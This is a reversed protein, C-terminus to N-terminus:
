RGRAWSPAAATQLSYPKDQLKEAFRAICTLGQVLDEEKLSFSIRAALRNGTCSFTEGPLIAIGCDEVLASYLDLGNSIPKHGYYKGRWASFDVLQFFGSDPEGLLKMGKIGKRLLAIDQMAPDQASAAYETIPLSHKSQTFAALEDLEKSWAVGGIHSPREEHHPAIAPCKRAATADIRVPMVAILGKVMDRLIPDPVDKRSIPSHEAFLKILLHKALLSQACAELYDLRQEAEHPSFTWHLAVQSPINIFETTSKINQV